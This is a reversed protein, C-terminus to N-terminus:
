MQELKLLGDAHGLYMCLRRNLGKRESPKGYSSDPGNIFRTGWNTLLAARPTVSAYGSRYSLM